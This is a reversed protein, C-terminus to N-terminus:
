AATLSDTVREKWWAPFDVIKKRLRAEEAAFVMAHGRIVEELTCGVYENQADEVKAGHNKVRDVALIFQRTLGGDGGGHGRLDHVDPRHLKKRGTRFDEVTVTEGDAYIEGHSGYIHTYRECIRKTHAVMHFIAMKAGRGALAKEADGNGKSSLPDDEWTMTVMQNDNVDNDSEWVCRGYWSKADVEAAPTDKTYDESLRSLLAAEGAAQGGNSICEEIEPLVIEVPWNTNGSGLGKHQDGIYIKRASYNCSEEIPCSLCNTANGAATPKRNKNFYLVSGSSTVTTPIHPPDSSGPAPSCLLWLLLDIDHCSKTLLSPATTSQKRWNGRFINTICEDSREGSIMGSLATPM